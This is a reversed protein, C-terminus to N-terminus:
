ELMCLYEKLYNANSRKWPLFIKERQATVCGLIMKGLVRKVYWLAM